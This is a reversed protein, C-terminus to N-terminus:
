TGVAITPDGWRSISVVAWGGAEQKAGSELRFHHKEATFRIWQKGDWFGLSLPKGAAAASALDSATYHVRVEIPPDFVSLESDPQEADLLKLNIVLRFPHFEGPVAPMSEITPLALRQVQIARAQGPFKVIVREKRFEKRTPLPTKVM